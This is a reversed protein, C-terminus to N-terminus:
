SPTLKGRTICESHILSLDNRDVQILKAAASNAAM